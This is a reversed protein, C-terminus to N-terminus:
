HIFPKDIVINYVIHRRGCSFLDRNHVGQNRVKNLAESRAFVSMLHTRNENASIHLQSM